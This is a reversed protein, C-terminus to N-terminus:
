SGTVLKLLCALDSFQSNYLFNLLSKLTLHSHLKQYNKSDNIYYLTDFLILIVFIVIHIELFM